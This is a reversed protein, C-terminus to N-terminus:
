ERKKKEREASEEHDRAVEHNPPPTGQVMAEQGEHPTINPDGMKGM